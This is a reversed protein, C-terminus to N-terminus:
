GAGRLPAGGRVPSHSRPPPDDRRGPGRRPIAAGNPGWWGAWPEEVSWPGPHGGFMKRGMITAGIGDQVRLSIENSPGTQGGELGHMYKFAATEFVWEHLRTGGVGLPHDVSQRPGAFFGDLSIDIRFRLKSM